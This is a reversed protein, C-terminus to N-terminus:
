DSASDNPVAAPNPILSRWYYPFVYTGFHRSAILGIIWLQQNMFSFTLELCNHEYESLILQSCSDYPVPDINSLSYGSHRSAYQRYMLEETKENPFWLILDLTPFVKTKLEIYAEYMGKDQIVVCWESLVTLLCSSQYDFDRRKEYHIDLEYIEDHNNFFHPAMRSYLMGLALQQNYLHLLALIDSPRGLKYLLLFVLSIENVQNDARPSFCTPNNNYIDIAADAFYAARSRLGEALDDDAAFDALQICELGAIALFGLHEYATFCYSVADSCYKSLGDKAEFAPTLKKLYKLNIDSKLYIIRIFETVYPGDLDKEYKRFLNWMRLLAIETAKIALRLDNELECYSVVISLLLNIKRLNNLNSRRNGGALDIQGIIEDLIFCFDQLDYSSDALHIVIKRLVRKSKDSFINESLLHQEVLNVITELQWIVFEFQQFREVFGNWNQQIAPDNSGNHAVVIKVPLQRHEAAVNNRVFVTAIEELSPQLAQVGAQWNRRDLNGQKVTILFLKKQGDEWDTGVAYIDVGYQREGKKAGFVVELDLARLLEELLADLEREEKLSAIYDTLILKM